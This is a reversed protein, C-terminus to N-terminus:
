IIIIIISKKAIGIMFGLCFVTNQKEKDETSYVAPSRHRIAQPHPHDEAITLLTETNLSVGESELM